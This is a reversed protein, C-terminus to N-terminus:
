DSQPSGPTHQLRVEGYICSGRAACCLVISSITNLSTRYVWVFVSSQMGFNPQIAAIYKKLDDVSDARKVANEAFCLLVCPSIRRLSVARWPDDTGLYYHSQNQEVTREMELIDAREIVAPLLDAAEKLLKEFKAVTEKAKANDSSGYKAKFLEYPEQVSAICKRLREPDNAAKIASELYYVANQQDIAKIM